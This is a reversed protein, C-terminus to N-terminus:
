ISNNQTSGIFVIKSDILSRLLNTHFVIVSFGIAWLRNNGSPMMYDVLCSHDPRLHEIFITYQM